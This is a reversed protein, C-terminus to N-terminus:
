EGPRYGLEKKLLSMFVAAPKRGGSAEKAYDLIRDFIEENFHGTACGAM